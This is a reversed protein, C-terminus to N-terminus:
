RGLRFPGRLTEKGLPVVVGKQYFRLRRASRLGFYTERLCALADRATLDQGHSRAIQEALVGPCVTTDPRLAAIAARVEAELGPLDACLARKSPKLGRCRASCPSQPGFLWCVECRVEGAGSM